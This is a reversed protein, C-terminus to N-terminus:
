DLQVGSSKVARGWRTIESEIFDGFQRASMPDRTRAGMGAIRQQMAPTRVAAVIDRNLRAVVDPPTGAPAMVGWWVSVQQEPFGAEAFTPVDPTIDSRKDDAVALVRISGAKIQGIVNAQNTFFSQVRGGIVDTVAATASPYPIHVININALAKFMEGTLHETSGAGGSAFNLTGPSRRAFAVYDQVTKLPLKPDVVLVGPAHALMAVPLLDKRADFPLKKRLTVNVAIAPSTILLTYGDGSSRAVFESGVVSGAGAKNEVVV